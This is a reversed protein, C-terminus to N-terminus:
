VFTLNIYLLNYVHNNKYTAVVDIIYKYNLYIKNIYAVKNFHCIYLFM